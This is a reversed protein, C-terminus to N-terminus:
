ASAAAARDGHAASGNGGAAATITVEVRPGSATAPERADVPKALGLEELVARVMPLSADDADGYPECMRSTAILGVEHLARKLNQIGAPASAPAFLRGLVHMRQQVDRARALDGSGAVADYLAVLLRPHLNAGGGVCGAAGARLMDAMFKENGCLVGFDPRPAATQILRRHYDLDGSSDKIAIVRPRDLLAAVTAHEYCTSTFQPINYLVVPLEQERLLIEVYRLLEAQRLPLYYPASAVVAAAGRDAAYRAVELSADLRTDTVHVYAPVRGAAAKLCVDVVDRRLADSLGAWEATTGLVFLGHVGGTIAHDVLAALGDADLRGHPTFPTVLPPIVGHVTPRAVPNTNM